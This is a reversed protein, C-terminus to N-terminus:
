KEKIAMAMPWYVLGGDGFVDTEVNYVEHCEECEVELTNDDAGTVYLQGNCERCKGNKIHIKM